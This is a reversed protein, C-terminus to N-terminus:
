LQFPSETLLEIINVAHHHCASEGVPWIEILLTILVDSKDGTSDKAQVEERIEEYYVYSVNLLLRLEPPYTSIWSMSKGM